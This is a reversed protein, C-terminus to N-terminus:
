MAFWQQGTFGSNNKLTVYVPFKSGTKRQKEFTLGRYLSFLSSLTPNGANRVNKKKLLKREGLKKRTKLSHM